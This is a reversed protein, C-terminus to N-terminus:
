TKLMDDILDNTEKEDDGKKKSVKILNKKPNRKDDNASDSVTRTIQIDEESKKGDETISKKQSKKSHRDKKYENLRKNIEPLTEVFYTSAAGKKAVAGSIDIMRLGHNSADSGTNEVVNDDKAGNKPSSNSQDIGTKKSELRNSELENSELDKVDSEGTVKIKSKDESLSDKNQESERNQTETINSEGSLLLSYDKNDSRPDNSFADNDQNSDNHNSDNQDPNNPDYDDELLSHDDNQYRRLDRDIMHNVNMYEDQNFQGHNMSTVSPYQGFYHKHEKQEYKQTIYELLVEKMPLMLRIAEKIAEKIIKHCTRKNHNLVISDQKHYFLESYGYFSRAAQVYCSHIFDHVIVNEHYKTKLLDKRKHDINYTLLIINAKCVAKILDDFIDASKTSSKIRDTENRIKHTNLNPIERIFTQFIVLIGPNEIGPDRKAAAIFKQESEYARKYLSQFGEYIAPILISFLYEEYIDKISVIHQEYCPDLTLLEKLKDM